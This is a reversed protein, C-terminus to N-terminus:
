PSGYVTCGLFELPWSFQLSVRQVARSLKVCVYALALRM